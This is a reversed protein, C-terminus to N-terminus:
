NVTIEFHKSDQAGDIADTLWDNLYNTPKNILQDKTMKNLFM